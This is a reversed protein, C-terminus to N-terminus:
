KNPLTYVMGPTHYPVKWKGSMQQKKVEKQVSIDNRLSVMEWFKPHHINTQLWNTIEDYREQLEQHKITAEKIM